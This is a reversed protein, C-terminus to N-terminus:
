KRQPFVRPIQLWTNKYFVRDNEVFLMQVQKTTNKNSISRCSTILSLWIPDSSLKYQMIRM